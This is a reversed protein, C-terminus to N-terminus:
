YGRASCTLELRLLLARPQRRSLHGPRTIARATLETECVVSPTRTTRTTRTTPYAAAPPDAAAAFSSSRHAAPSGPAGRVISAAARTRRLTVDYGASRGEGGREGGFRRCSLFNPRRQRHDTRKGKSLAERRHRMLAEMHCERYLVKAVRHWM